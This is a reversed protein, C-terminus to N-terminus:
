SLGLLKRLVRKTLVTAMHTRYEASCRVDTISCIGGPILAAAKEIKEELKGEGEFVNQIEPVLVPTPAVSSLAVRVTWKGSNAVLGAVGVLALDEGWTRKWKLYLSRAGEPPNPLRVAKVFESPELATRKVGKFFDEIRIKRSGKASVVEVEANHVLLAPASDAAPSANCINGVLTARNRITQDALERAATWLAGFREKVVKSDIIKNVTIAAGISLGQEGDWSLEHLGKIGNIQVVFKPMILRDRMLVLLDTGGAMLKAESGHKNLISILEEISSPRLYDFEPLPVDKM